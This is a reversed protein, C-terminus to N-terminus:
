EYKTSTPELSGGTKMWWRLCEVCIGCPEHILSGKRRLPEGSMAREEDWTIGYDGQDGSNGKDSRAM